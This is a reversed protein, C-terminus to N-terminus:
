CVGAKNRIWCNGASTWGNSAPIGTVASAKTGADNITFTFGDAGNKGQASITYSQDTAGAGTGLTCIYTFYKAEASPMTTACVSGGKDYTRNDQYYQEMRINLTSLQAYAEALKGRLVYDQYAPLAISALIGVIAVVIMLEILTFGQIKNRM